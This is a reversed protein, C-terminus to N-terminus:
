LEVVFHEHIGREIARAHEGALAVVEGAVAAGRHAFPQLSAIRREQLKEGPMLVYRVRPWAPHRRELAHRAKGVVGEELRAFQFDIKGRASEVMQPLSADVIRAQEAFSALGAFSATRAAALARRVEEPVAREACARWAADASTVFVWPDVGSADLLEVAQPPLWTAGLRPVPAAPQVEVGEFV